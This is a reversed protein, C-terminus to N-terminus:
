SSLDQFPVRTRQGERDAALMPWTCVEKFNYATKCSAPLPEKKGQTTGQIDKVCQECRCCLDPLCDSQSINWTLSYPAPM